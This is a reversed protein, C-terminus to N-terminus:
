KLKNNYKAEKASACAFASDVDIPGWRSMQDIHM